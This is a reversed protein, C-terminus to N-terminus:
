KRRRLEAPPNSPEPAAVSLVGPLTALQRSVQEAQSRLVPLWRKIKAETMREVPASIGLSAIVRGEADKLSVALGGAGPVAEGRSTAYGRERTRTVEELLQRSSTITQDTVRELGGQMWAQLEQDTMGALYCKGAALAHMPMPPFQSLHVRVPDSSLAWSALLMRRREIDPIALGTSEGVTEAFQELLSQLADVGSWSRRLKMVINLWIMPEWFYRDTHKDKAVVNMSVLTRLLRLVTTKHLGLERSLDTLTRGEPATFLTEMMRSVREVSRVSQTRPALESSAPAKTSASKGPM